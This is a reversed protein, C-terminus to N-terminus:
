GGADHMARFQQQKIFWGCAYVRFCPALEPIFDMSQRRIAHGNQDRGVVHVLGFSTMFDVIYGVSFQQGTAGNVLDNFARMQCGIHQVPRVRGLCGKVQFGKGADILNGRKSGCQV